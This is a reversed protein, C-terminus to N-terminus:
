WPATLKLENVVVPIMVFQSTMFSIALSLEVVKAGSIVAVPGSPEQRRIPCLFRYCHRIGVEAIRLAQIEVCKALVIGCSETIGVPVAHPIIAGLDRHFNFLRLLRLYFAGFFSSCGGCRQFTLDLVRKFVVSLWHCVSLDM